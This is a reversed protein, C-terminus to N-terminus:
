GLTPAAAAPAYPRGTLAEFSACVADESMDVALRFLPVRTLLGDLLELTAAAATPDEPMYVQRMAADIAAAPALPEAHSEGAAARELFCIGALPASANRNWGEKGCWPTGYAIPTTPAFAEVNAPDAALAATSSAAGEGADPVWVLPKDGNIVQVDAGLYKYWLKIHTSKGTGSAACFMFARGEYEIVAGHVLLRRRQPVREAIRRYVALTELYADSWDSGETARAREAEIDAPSIDVCLDPVADDVLYNACMRRVGPHLARVRFALGAM